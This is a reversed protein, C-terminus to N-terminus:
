GDFVVVVEVVGGVNVFVVVLAVVFSVVLSVVVMVVVALSGVTEVVSSIEM